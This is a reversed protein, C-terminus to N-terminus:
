TVKLANTMQLVKLRMVAAGNILIDVSGFTDNVEQKIRKMDEKNTVDGLFVQSEGGLAKITEVLGSADERLGVMAVKAGSQALSLLCRVALSM